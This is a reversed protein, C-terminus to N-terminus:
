LYGLFSELLEFPIPFLGEREIAHQNDQTLWFFFKSLFKGEVLM